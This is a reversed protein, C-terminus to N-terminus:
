RLHPKLFVEIEKVAGLMKINFKDTEGIDYILMNGDTDLKSHGGLYLSIAAYLERVLLNLSKQADVASVGWSVEAELLEAELNTQADMVKKWRMSYVARNMKDKNQYEESGLGNEKLAVEMEGLSIFPNRVFKIADRLQLATKLYRRASEYETKGKMQRKWEWFVGYVAAGALIFTSLATVSSTIVNILIETESSM